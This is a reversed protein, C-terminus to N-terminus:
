RCTFSLPATDSASETETSASQPSILTPSSSMSTSPENTPTSSSPPPSCASSADSASSMPPPPPVLEETPEKPTSATSSADSGTSGPTEEGVANSGSPEGDLEAAGDPASSTEQQFNVGSKRRFKTKRLFKSSLLEAHSSMGFAPLHISSSQDEQSPMPPLLIRLYVSIKFSSRRKPKDVDPSPSPRSNLNLSAAAPFHVSVRSQFPYAPGSACFPIGMNIGHTPNVYNSENYGDNKVRECGSRYVVDHCLFLLPSIRFTLSSTRIELSCEM